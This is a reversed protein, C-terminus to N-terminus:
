ILQLDDSLEPEKTTLSEADLYISVHCGPFPIAIEHTEVEGDLYWYAANGSIILIAGNLAAVNNVVNDLGFGKNNPQSKTSFRYEIARKIADSHNLTNENQQLLFRNVKEPIGVGFDCISTIM